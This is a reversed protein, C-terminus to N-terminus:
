ASERRWGNIWDLVEPYVEAQANRSYIIRSHNYDERYGGAKSCFLFKNKPNQFANLFKECGPRPAIITDGAGNIALIPFDIMLMEPTYDFGDTGRFEQTLEWRYWIKMMYHKENHPSGFFRAPVYGVLWSIYSGIAIGMYNVTSFAAAGTAQSAFFTATNINAIYKPNQILFMTLCLGGASHVVVELSNIKMQNVLYDFVVLFEEKAVTEFDYKGKYPTSEGHNRWELIWCIFGNKALYEAIGMCVKRNSFTGHTLFIHRTNNNGNNIKWLAIHHTKDLPLDIRQHNM